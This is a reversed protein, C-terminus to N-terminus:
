EVFMRPLEGSGTHVANLDTYTAAKRTKCLKVLSTRSTYLIFITAYVGQLSVVIDVVRRRYFFQVEYTASM